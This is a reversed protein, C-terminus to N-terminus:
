LCVLYDYSGWSLLLDTPSAVVTPDGRRLLDIELLHTPSRLIQWQKELYAQRGASSSGKNTPSLVEIVTVVRARERAPRIELFSERVEPPGLTVEWCPDSMLVTAERGRRREKQRVPLPQQVSVDPVLDRRPRVVYVREQVRAVYR